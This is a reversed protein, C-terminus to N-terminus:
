SPHPSTYYCKCYGWLEPQFGTWNSGHATLVDTEVLQIYPRKQALYAEMKWVLARRKAVDVMANQQTWWRDYAPDDFGSDSNNDWQARTVVSLNFDPDIYPHWYWTYMDTSLYKANPGTIMTYAQSADGGPVENLTVGIKQFAARLILFQRNGNFDLDDPVIVNYTMSHAAQAFRGGTAPVERVGGSGMRYGLSNLISNAKAPDYPLPQVKPNLWGSGASASSLINAWPRAYGGFLVSVLQKRPIAYEFAEKVLPNLLERNKPKLPNSNFGLNTVESGPGVNLTIGHRGKLTSAITYPVSDVFDLNGNELDAVMSTPNTYFTLTVAAARSRPGYFYPNPRFVTTGKQSFETLYYAGGGVVPLHAQPEFSHLGAGKSGVHKRWIHEPLIFFQELNALVAAVPHDYTLVLTHANPATASKVGDLVGALYSTPGSAYKLTTNITWVADASTLPAGDSWKGSRLTFTWRLGDPSHTWSSAWDGEMKEGPGYQVLQPYVMTYAATDQPEIGLFPNLTDIYYVTGVRLVASHSSSSGGQSSGGCGAAAMIAVAVAASTIWRRGARVAGREQSM